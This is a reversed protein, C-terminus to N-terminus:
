EKVSWNIESWSLALNKLAVIIPGFAIRIESSIAKNRAMLLLERIRSRPQPIPSDVSKSARLYPAEPNRRSFVILTKLIRPNVILCYGNKGVSIFAQWKRVFVEIDQERDVGVM